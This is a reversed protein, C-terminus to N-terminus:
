VDLFSKLFARQRSLAAKLSAICRHPSVANLGGSFPNLPALSLSELQLMIYREIYREIAITSSCSVWAM